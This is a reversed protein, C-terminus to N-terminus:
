FITLILSFTFLMISSVETYDVVADHEDAESSDGSSGVFSGDDEIDDSAELPAPTHQCSIRPKHVCKEAAECAM